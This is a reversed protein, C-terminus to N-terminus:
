FKRNGLVQLMHAIDYEERYAADEGLNASIMTILSEGDFSKGAFEALLEVADKEDLDKQYCKGTFISYLLASYFYIDNMTFDTTHKNPRLMYCYNEFKEMDLEDAVYPKVVSLSPVTFIDAVSATSYGTQYFKAANEKFAANKKFRNMDDLLVRDVTSHRCYGKKEYGYDIIKHANILQRGAMVAFWWKQEFPSEYISIYKRCLEDDIEYGKAKLRGAVNEILEWIEQSNSTDEAAYKAITEIIIEAPTIGLPEMQAKALLKEISEIGPQLSICFRLLWERTVLAKGAKIKSFQTECQPCGIDRLLWAAKEYYGYEEEIVEELCQGFKRAGDRFEERYDSVIKYLEELSKVNSLLVWLDMTNLSRAEEEGETQIIEEIHEKVTELEDIGFLGNILAIWLADEINKCYLGYGMYKELLQYNIEELTMHFAMGLTIYIERSAPLSGKLWSGVAQRTVPSFTGGEGNKRNVRHFVRAALTTNSYDYLDMKDELFQAFSTPSVKNERIRNEIIELLQDENLMAM